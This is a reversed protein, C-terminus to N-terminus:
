GTYEGSYSAASLRKEDLSAGKQMDRHATPVSWVVNFVSAQFVFVCVAARTCTNIRFGPFLYVGQRGAMRDADTRALAFSLISVRNMDYM